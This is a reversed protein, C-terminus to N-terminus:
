RRAYRDRASTIHQALTDKDQESSMTKAVQDYWTKLRNQAANINTNRKTYAQLAKIADKDGFWSKITNWLWAWTGMEGQAGYANGIGRMIQGVNDKTAAQAMDYVRKINELYGGQATPAAIKRMGMMKFYAQKNM